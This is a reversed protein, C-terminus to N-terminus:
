PYKCVVFSASLFSPTGHGQGFAEQDGAAQAADPGPRDPPQEGLAGAHDGVVQRPVRVPQAEDEVVVLEGACGPDVAVDGVEGRDFPDDGVVLDGMDDMQGSHLQRQYAGIGDPAHLDVRDAGRHDEFRDPPVAVLHAA